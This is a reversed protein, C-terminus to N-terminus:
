AAWHNHDLSRVAARVCEATQPATLGDVDVTVHAASAYIPAREYTLTRIREDVNGALIPRGVGSGNRVLLEDVGARLWVVISSARLAERSEERLVAGGGVSVVKPETILMSRSLLQAEADRFWQEGHQEFMESITIGQEAVLVADLDILSRDLYRALLRGVTTKGCGMMGVLTVHPTGFDATELSM